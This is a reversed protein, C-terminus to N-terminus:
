NTLNPIPTRTMSYGKLSRMMKQTLIKKRTKLSWYGRLITKM